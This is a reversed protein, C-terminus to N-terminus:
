KCGPLSSYYAALNEIDKDTLPAVMATMSPDKRTGDKFAKIQKVLYATKQKALNPWIEAASCGNAGHCAMCTASKAKGANVDGAGYAPMSLMLISALVGIIKKTYTM